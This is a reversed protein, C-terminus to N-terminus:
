KSQDGVGWIVVAVACVILMGNTINWAAAHEQGSGGQGWLPLVEGTLNISAHCLFAPVLSGSAGNQMWTMLVSVAVLTVAFHGYPVSAEHQPFGSVVFMPLHWLAWACGVVLSAVLAGSRAQL